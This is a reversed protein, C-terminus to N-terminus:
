MVRRYGMRFYGKQNRTMMEVKATQYGHIFRRRYEQAGSLSFFEKGVLEFIISKAGNILTEYYDNAIVNDVSCATRTPGASYEIEFREPKASATKLWITSPAEFWSMDTKFAFEPRVTYRQIAQSPANHRTKAVNLIAIIETDDEPDLSYNYVGPQTTIETKYRVLDSERCMIIAARRLYNVLSPLPLDPFDVELDYTLEDFRTKPHSEYVIM